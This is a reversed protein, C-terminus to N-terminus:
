TPLLRTPCQGVRRGSTKGCRECDFERGLQDRATKVRRFSASSARSVADSTPKVQRALKGLGVSALAYFHPSAVRLSLTPSTFRSRAFCLGPDFLTATHPSKEGNQTQRSPASRPPCNWKSAKKHWWRRRHTIITSTYM